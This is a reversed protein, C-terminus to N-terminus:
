MQFLQTKNSLKAVFLNWVPEWVTRSVCEGHLSPLSDAAGMQEAGVESCGNNADGTHAM